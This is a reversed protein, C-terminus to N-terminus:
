FEFLYQLTLYKGVFQYKQFIFQDDLSSEIFEKLLGRVEYQQYSNTRFNKKILFISESFHCNKNPFEIIMEDIIKLLQEFKEFEETFLLISIINIYFDNMNFNIFEGREAGSTQALYRLLQFKDYKKIRIKGDEFFYENINKYFIKSKFNNQSSKNEFHDDILLKKKIEYEPYNRIILYNHSMMLRIYEIQSLYNITNSQLLETLKIKSIRFFILIFKIIPVDTDMTAKIFSERILKNTSYTMIKSILHHNNLIKNIWKYNKNIIINCFFTKCENNYNLFNELKLEQYIFKFYNCTKIINSIDFINLYNFLYLWVDKPLSITNM